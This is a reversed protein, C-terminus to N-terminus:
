GHMKRRVTGRARFEADIRLFVDVVAQPDPLAFEALNGASGVSVCVGFGQLARFADSDALYDGFYAMLTAAPLTERIFRVASGKNCSGRLRAELVRNARGMMLRRHHVNMVRLFAAEVGALHEDRVGRTHVAVTPGKSELLVGPTAGMEEALERRVEDLLGAEEPSYFRTEQGEPSLIEFGHNGVYWLGGLDVKRRLDGLARGSLVGFIVRHHAALAQIAARAAGPLTADEPRDALPLIAGDLGTLLCLRRAALLRSRFEEWHERLDKM